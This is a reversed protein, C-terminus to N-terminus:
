GWAATYPQGCSPPHISEYMICMSAKPTGHQYLDNQCEIQEIEPSSFRTLLM